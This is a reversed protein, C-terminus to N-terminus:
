KSSPIRATGIVNKAEENNSKKISSNAAEEFINMLDIASHRKSLPPQQIVSQKPSVWSNKKKLSKRPSNKKHVQQKKSRKIKLDKNISKEYLTM